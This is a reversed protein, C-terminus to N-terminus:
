NFKLTEKVKIEKEKQRNGKFARFIDNTKLIDLWIKVHLLQM